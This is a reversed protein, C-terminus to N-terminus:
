HQFEFILWKKAAAPTKVLRLISFLFKMKLYSRCTLGMKNKIGICGIGDFFVTNCHMELLEAQENKNLKPICLYRSNPKNTTLIRSIYM